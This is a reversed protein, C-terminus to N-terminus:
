NRTCLYIADYLGYYVPISIYKVDWEKELLKHFQEDGTCGDYEGMYILKNGKFKILADYAISKDYPPWSMMLINTNYTEIAKVGDMKEVDTFTKDSPKNDTVYMTVGAKRMCASWLAKGACIELVKDSKIFSIIKKMAEYSYCNWAFKINIHNRLRTGIFSNEFSIKACLEFLKYLYEFEGSDTKSKLLKYSLTDRIKQEIKIKNKLEDTYEKTIAYMLETEDCKFIKPDILLIDDSTHIDEARSILKNGTILKDGSKCEM